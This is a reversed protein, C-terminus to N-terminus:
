IEKGSEFDSLQLVRESKRRPFKNSVGGRKEGDSLRYSTSLLPFLFFLLFAVSVKMNIKKTSFVRTRVTM